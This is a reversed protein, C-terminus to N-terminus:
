SDKKMEGTLEALEEDSLDGTVWRAVHRRSVKGTGTRPLAEIRHIKRPVKYPALRGKCWDKLAQEDFTEGEAIEVAAEPLEGRVDDEVGVAASAAVSEHADLADEIERPSVNEGGVIIMEKLRGTIRLFGNEDITGIDGTRFFGNEDFSQRTLEDLKYYGRMVNPGRMRIEGEEGPACRRGTEPDVIIQEMGPLARGVSGAAGDEPMLLNTVPSTETLGYGENIRIGFRESFQAAVPRSLPEGGAVAFRLSSFDDTTASKVRLLAGFMSSIGVFATPRHKRMMRVIQQPVFRATYVARCGTMLPLMTLVTLGFSHFQPLVGLIVDDSTFRAHRRSQRVNASLNGHTLMVGKPLGSTGSTYLIVALDDPSAMSPWRPTPMTKYPLEELMVVSGVSPTFGIYEAMQGITLVTDTDCDRIVHELEPRRLLYNLPVVVRGTMWGALAAPAFLGSTPILLGVTRSQCNAEIADAIHLAAVIIDAGRWVRRDDRFVERRPHTILRRM